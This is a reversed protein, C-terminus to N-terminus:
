SLRTSTPAGSVVSPLLVASGMLSFVLRVPDRRVQMAERSTFALLRGLSFRPAPGRAPPTAEATLAPDDDGPRVSPALCRRPQGRGPRQRALSDPPLGSPTMAAGVAVIATRLLDTRQIRRAQWAGLYGGITTAVALIVPDGAPLDRRQKQDEGRGGQREGIEAQGPM